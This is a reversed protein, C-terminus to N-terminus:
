IRFSLPIGPSQGDKLRTRRLLYRLTLANATILIQPGHCISFVPKNLKMFDEAFQVAKPDVRLHDPSYGGPILLADYDAAKEGGVSKDITVPTNEKKGKITNGAKLGIHVLRHGEKKLAEAPQTYESDEFGDDIIVAITAM